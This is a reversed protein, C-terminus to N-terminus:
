SAATTTNMKIESTPQVRISKDGTAYGDLTDNYFAIIQPATLIDTDFTIHADKVLTVDYGLSTARRITTDVCYETQGGAVILHQIGRQALEKQLTTQHFSDSSEKHIVPEHEHPTIAPHIQWDPTGVVLGNGSFEDHQVYIVPIQNARAQTLLLNINELIPPALPNNEMMGVQIDIIVLATNNDM